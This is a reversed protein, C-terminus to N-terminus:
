GNGLLMAWYHAQSVASPRVAHPVSSPVIMKGMSKMRDKGCFHNNTQNVQFIWLLVKATRQIDKTEQYFLLSVLASWRQSSAKFKWTHIIELDVYPSPYSPRSMLHPALIDHGHLPRVEAKSVTGHTTNHSGSIITTVFFGTACKMSRSGVQKSHSIEPVTSVLFMFEYILWSTQDFFNSKWDVRFWNNPYANPNWGM